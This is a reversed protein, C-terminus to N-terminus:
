AFSLLYAVYLGLLVIGLRRGIPRSRWVLVALLIAAAMMVPVDVAVARGLV